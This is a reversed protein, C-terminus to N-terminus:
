CECRLRFNGVLCTTQKGDTRWVRFHLDQALLVVTPENTRTGWGWPSPDACLFSERFTPPFFPQIFTWLISQTPHVELSWTGQPHALAASTRGPTSM